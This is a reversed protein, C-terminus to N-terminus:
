SKEEKKWGNQNQKAQVKQNDHKHLITYSGDAYTEILTNMLKGIDVVGKESVFANETKARQIMGYFSKESIDTYVRKVVAM